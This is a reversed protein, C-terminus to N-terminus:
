QLSRTVAGPASHRKAHYAPLRHAAKRNGRVAGTSVLIAKEAERVCEALTRSAGRWSYGFSASIGAEALATAVRSCVLGVESPALGPLLLAFVQAGLRALADNARIVRRIVEIGNVALQNGAARTGADERTRLSDLDFVIIGAVGQTTKCRAEERRLLFRWGQPSFAGTLDDTMTAAKVHEARRIAETAAVEHGWMASLMAAADRVVSVNRALKKPAHPEVDLGVLYGHGRALSLPVALYAGIAIKNLTEAGAAEPLSGVDPIVRPVVGAMIRSLLLTRWDFSLGAVQGFLPDQCAVIVGNAGGQRILIWTPLGTKASLKSFIVQAAPLFGKFGRMFTPATSHDHSM